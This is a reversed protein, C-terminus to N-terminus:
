SFVIKGAEDFHLVEVVKKRNQIGLTNLGGGSKEKRKKIGMIVDPMIHGHGENISKSLPMNYANSWKSLSNGSHGAVLEQDQKNKEKQQKIAYQNFSFAMMEMKLKLLHEEHDIQDQTKANSKVADSIVPKIKASNTNQICGM